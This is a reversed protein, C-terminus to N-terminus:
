WVYEVVLQLLAIGVGIDCTMGSIMGPAMDSTMESTM